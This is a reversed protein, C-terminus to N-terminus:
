QWYMKTTMLFVARLNPKVEPHQLCSQLAKQMYSPDQSNMSGSLLLIMFLVLVSLNRFSSLEIKTM